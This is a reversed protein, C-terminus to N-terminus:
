ARAAEVAAALKPDAALRAVIAAAEAARRAEETPTPEGALLLGEPPIELDTWGARAEGWDQSRLPKLDGLDAIKATAPNLQYGRFGEPIGVSVETQNGLIEVSLRAMRVLEAPSLSPDLLLYPM